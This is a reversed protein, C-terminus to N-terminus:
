EFFFVESNDSKLSKRRTYVLGNVMGLRNTINLFADTCEVFEICLVSKDQRLYVHMMHYGVRSKSEDSVNFLVSYRIDKEKLGMNAIKDKWYWDDPELNFESPNSPNDFCQIRARATQWAPKAKEILENLTIM